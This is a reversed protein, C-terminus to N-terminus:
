VSTRFLLERSTVTGRLWSLQSIHSLSFLLLPALPPSNERFGSAVYFHEVCVMVDKTWPAEVPDAFVPLPPNNPAPYAASPARGAAAQEIEAVRQCLQQKSTAGRCVETSTTELAKRMASNDLKMAGVDSQIAVSSMRVANLERITERRQLANEAMVAKFQAM